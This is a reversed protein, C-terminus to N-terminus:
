VQDIVVPSQTYTKGPSIRLGCAKEVLQHAVWARDVIPAFLLAKALMRMLHDGEMLDSGYFHYSKGSHAIYGHLGLSRAVAKVRQDNM